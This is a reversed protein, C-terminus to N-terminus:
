LKVVGSICIWDESWMRMCLVLEKLIMSRGQGVLLFHGAVAASVSVSVGPGSPMRQM